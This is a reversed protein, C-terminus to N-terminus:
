VERAALRVLNLKLAAQKDIEPFLHGYRDYTFAVSSHGARRAIESPDVGALALLAVGTHKLDHPRLPNLGAALVARRWPRTRWDDALLPREGSPGFVYKSGPQLELHDRLDDFVSSPLTMSRRGAKTKPPGEIPRGLVQVANNEIRITGADLNIDSRRLGTAEGIRLTAWAMVLVMARYRPEMAIALQELESPTLFRAETRVIRPLQVGKAPNQAIIGRDVAVALLQDLVVYTRRVTSPALRQSLKEVWQQVDARELRGLQADRFFPLVDRDLAERDRVKTSPRNGTRTKWWSEAFEGITERGAKRDLPTRTEYSAAFRGLAQAAERRTNFTGIGFQRGRVRVRAQYRGSRERRITGFGSREM